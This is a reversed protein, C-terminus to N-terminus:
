QVNQWIKFNVINRINTDSVNFRKSLARTGFEPDGPKHNKRIFRVDDETLKASPNKEGKLYLGSKHAYKRNQEGTVWELNWVANNAKNDDKHHVEPLNLPNPIFTEAVIRNLRFTKKHLKQDKEDFHYLCITLYGRPGPTPKLLRCKGRFFSRARGETSVQYVGEYGKIWEWKESPLDLIVPVPNKREKEYEALLKKIMARMQLSLVPMQAALCALEEDNKASEKAIQKLLMEISPVAYYGYKRISPLVENTVWHTFEVAKPLKSSFILRYLGSENIFTVRQTGGMSNSDFLDNDSYSLPTEGTEQNSAMKEFDKRTLIIKDADHVHQKLAAFTDAYGLATAVDKGAFYPVGDILITRITGFEPNNFIQLQNEM